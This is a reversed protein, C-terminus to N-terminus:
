KKGGKIAVTAREMFLEKEPESLDSFYQVHSQTLQQQIADHLEKLFNDWEKFYLICTLVGGIKVLVGRPKKKIM